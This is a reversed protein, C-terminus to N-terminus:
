EWVVFEDISVVPRGRTGMVRITLTHAGADAFTSGVAPSALFRARRAGFAGGVPSDPHNDVPIRTDSARRAKGVRRSGSLM